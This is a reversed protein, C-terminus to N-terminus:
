QVSYGAATGNAYASINVFFPLPSLPDPDYAMLTVSPAM